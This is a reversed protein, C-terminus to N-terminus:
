FSYFTPCSSQVTLQSFRSRHLPLFPLLHEFCAAFIFDTLITRNCLQNDMLQIHLVSSIVGTHTSILLCSSSQCDITFFFFFLFFTIINESFLVQPKTDSISFLQSYNMLHASYFPRYLKISHGPLFCSNCYLVLHM